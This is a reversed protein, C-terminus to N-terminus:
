VIELPDENPVVDLILHHGMINITTTEVINDLINVLINFVNQYIRREVFDPLYKINVNDDELLKDVFENVRTRSLETLKTHGRVVTIPKSEEPPYQKRAELEKNIHKLSEIQKELEHIKLQYEMVESEKQRKFSELMRAEFAELERRTVIGDGNTDADLLHPKSSFMGMQINM